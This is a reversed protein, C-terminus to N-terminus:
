RLAEMNSTVIKWVQQLESEGLKYAQKGLLREYTRIVWGSIENCLRDLWADEEERIKRYEECLWIKQHSKLRSDEQRYQERCVSRVAWMRDIIRHMLDQLRYDRGERIRKNNYDTKFLSHLANFIDRYEYYRFSEKFFNNKPFHIKRKKLTPPASLLLYAEGHNRANLESINQPNAGGYGIVTLNYLESYGHESYTNSRELDRLAKTTESFRISNIRSKLEYILGSNSLISLLHYNDGVPFYVQKIKSSTEVKSSPKKIALFSKRLSAYSDSQISLLTKALDTENEIHEVLSCGDTMILNLFSEVDLAAADGLSDLESAANGSKLFGDAIKESNYIIPTVFTFNKINKLGIGTSPHSFKSPHTSFARSKARKAAKPLWAEKSFTKKCESQKERIELEDMSSKINKKLWLEKKADFFADIAPDIM